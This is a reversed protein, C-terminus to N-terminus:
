GVEEVEKNDFQCRLIFSFLSSDSLLENQFTHSFRATLAGFLDSVCKFYFTVESNDNRLSLLALLIDAVEKTGSLSVGLLSSEKELVQPSGEM